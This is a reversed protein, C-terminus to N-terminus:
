LTSKRKGGFRLIKYTFSLMVYSTLSNYRSLLRFNDGISEKINQKQQLIDYFKLSVIGKRRFFAKDISADWVLENRDFNSYGRRTIYSFKNTINLSYPLHLNVNGASTWDTTEQKKNANLSNQTKTYNVAGRLGVEVVTTTFTLSLDQSGNLKKTESLDGMRLKNESVWVSDMRSRDSYGFREQYGVETRTNFQLRNKILPTNFMLNANVNFPAKISNITQSFQKGTADYISNTVLADRTYAGNLGASFSSFHTANFSSYMLRLTHEFSPNLNPNGVMENMLNNNNKVPQMQEISPQSTRGRYELRAFNKKGFNYRFTATPSANLVMNMRDIIFGNIYYTTSYTQSPEAKMGVMYNFSSEQHRFNLEFAENYFNNVFSNSYVSDLVNYIEKNIGKKYQMKDSNRTNMRATVSAELFNELNWLPEVMSIRLNAQYTQSKSTTQQNVYTATDKTNKESYNQGASKSDNLSGGLNVTFVRGKKSKSKRSYILNLSADTGNSENKNRSNGWSISDGNAFYEYDSQSSSVGKTSGIEPQIILTSISDMKWEVELRMNAQQNGRESSSANNRNYAVNKLWSERESSTESVNFSHNYTGDGGIKLTKSVETNNNIGLNQTSTTGSGGTIGSRGRSSRQINTNNLGGVLSTQSEGRMLNLTANNNYRFKSEKDMGGGVTANGFVGNKRNPKITLNIIRETNEDEFGTLQAMESKQDIVQIKEIMDIPINKTAMQIDGGFFKKGNLRIKKIEEGNITIKGDEDVVVGPLKKLLDEVIANEETKFASTNYEITDGKVAMQASMGTVEIEKLNKTNEELYINKLILSQNPVTLKHLQKEYGLFSVELLYEGSTIKSLSFSGKDDTLNMKVLSSDKFNLLRITAMEITSEDKKDLVKGQIQHQALITFNVIILFFAVTCIYKM